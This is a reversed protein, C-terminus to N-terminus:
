RGAEIRGRPAFTRLQKEIVTTGYAPSTTSVRKETLGPSVLAGVGAPVTELATEGTEADRCDGKGSVATVFIEEELVLVVVALRMALPVVLTIMYQSVLLPSFQFAVISLHSTKYM